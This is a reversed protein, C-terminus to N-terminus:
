RPMPGAPNRDIMVNRPLQIKQPMKIRPQQFVAERYVPIRPMDRYPSLNVRPPQYRQTPNYRPPTARSVARPQYAYVNASPMYYAEAQAQGALMIMLVIALGIKM